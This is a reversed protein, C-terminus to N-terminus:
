IIRLNMAAGIKTQIFLINFTIIEEEETRIPIKLRLILEFDLFPRRFILRIRFYNSFFLIKGRLDDSGPLWLKLRFCSCFNDM